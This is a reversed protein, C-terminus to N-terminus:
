CSPVASAPPESSPPRVSVTGAADVERLRNLLDLLDEAEAVTLSPEFWRRLEAQVVQQARFVVATGEETLELLSSRRDSPNGTRVCHGSAEIRDILKSTGGVTISLAAAVDQVRCSGLSGITLMAEYRGLPLDCGKRLASDVADWVETEFRTLTSFLPYFDIPQDATM